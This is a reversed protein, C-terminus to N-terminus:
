DYNAKSESSVKFSDPRKTLEPPLRRAGVLSSLPWVASVSFRTENPILRLRTSPQLSDGLPPLWKPLMRRRVKDARRARRFSSMTFKRMRFKRARSPTPALRPIERKDRPPSPGPAHAGKIGEFRATMPHLERLVLCPLLEAMSRLM